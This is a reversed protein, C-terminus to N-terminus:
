ADPDVTYELVARLRADQRAALNDYIEWARLVDPRALVLAHHGDDYYACVLYTGAKYLPSSTLQPRDYQADEIRVTGPIKVAPSTTM